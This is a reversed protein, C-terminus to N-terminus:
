KTIKMKQAKDRDKSRKGRKGAKGFQTKKIGKNEM